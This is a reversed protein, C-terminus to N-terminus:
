QRRETLTDHRTILARANELAADTVASGSLMAAIEQVREDDSLATMRTASGRGTTEKYVKYQRDARAAIQPLHTITIVQRGGAAIQRMTDAMSDAAAGSVGTDIEDFVVTPLKVADSIMAKVALMLRSVEGGSAVAAVPQAPMDKNASFLFTVRDTGDSCPACPTVSVDFTAGTMCLGALRNRVDAALTAAAKRRLRSLEAALEECRARMSEVRRREAAITEDSSEASETKARADDRLNILASEDDCRYKRELSYLSDLRDSVRRQEDPDFYADQAMTDVYRSIDKLEIYASDLRAAVDGAGGMVDAISEIAKVAKGVATVAGTEDGSLLSAAGYLASKIEEAHAMARAKSELEDQEGARLQAGSLEAYVERLREVTAKDREADAVHSSLAEEAAKYRNYAARYDYLVAGDRAMVDVVGLQFEHEGLTLNHHQSHIDILREGLTKLFAVPVPSDNVFARSKGAATVERRVICDDADYDIDADTFLGEMGYASVDFHGEVICRSAGPRIAKTDARQGSLLGLAGLVISKGAGTEGTIVSFGEGFRMDLTEILAYNSIYLRTLM